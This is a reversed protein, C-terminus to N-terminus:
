GGLGYSDWSETVRSSVVPDMAVVPPWGRVPEGDRGDGPTKPTADFALCDGGADGDGIRILDRGPDMNALWHFFGDVPSLVDVGRGVGVVYPLRPVFGPDIALVSELVALGLGVRDPESVGRNIEIV